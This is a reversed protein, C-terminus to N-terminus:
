LIINSFVAVVFWFLAKLLPIFTISFHIQSSALFSYLMLMFRRTRDLCMDVYDLMGPTANAKWSRQAFLLGKDNFNSPVCFCSVSCFSLVVPLPVYLFQSGDFNLAFFFWVSKGKLLSHTFQFLPDLLMNWSIQLAAKKFERFKSIQRIEREKSLCYCCLYM